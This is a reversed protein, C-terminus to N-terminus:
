GELWKAYKKELDEIAVFNGSEVDKNAAEIEEKWKKAVVFVKENKTLITNIASLLEEDYTNIIKRYIIEKLEAISM